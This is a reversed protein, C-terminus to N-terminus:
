NLSSKKKKRATNLIGTAEPACEGQADMCKGSDVEGDQGNPSFVNIGKFVRAIPIKDFSVCKKRILYSLFIIFYSIIIESDM